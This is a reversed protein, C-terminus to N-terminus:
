IRGEDEGREDEAVEEPTPVHLRSVAERVRDDPRRDYIQTTSPSAHGVARMTTLLDVGADLLSSVFWRRFSHPSILPNAGAEDRRAAVVRHISRDSIPTGTRIDGSKGVPVFLAGSATSHYQRWRAIYKAPTDHLQAVRVKAGKTLFTVTGARTDLAEITANALESRRPGAGGLLALIAADRAGKVVNPDRVCSRLMAAFEADTVAHGAVDPSEATNRESLARSVADYDAIDYRALHRLLGNAAWLYKRQTRPRVSRAIAAKTHDYLEVDALLEWEVLEYAGRPSGLLEAVSGLASILTRQTNSSARYKDVFARVAAARRADLESLPRLSATM